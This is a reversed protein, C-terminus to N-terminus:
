NKMTCLSEACWESVKKRRETTGTKAVPLSNTHDKEKKIESKQNGTIVYGLLAIPLETNRGIAM